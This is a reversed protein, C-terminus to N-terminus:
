YILVVTKDSGELVDEKVDTIIFAMDYASDMTYVLANQDETQLRAILEKVTMRKLDGM